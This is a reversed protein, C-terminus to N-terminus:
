RSSRVASMALVASVTEARVGAAATLDEVSAFGGYHERHAVIARAERREIGPITLLFDLTAANLDFHLPLDRVGLAPLDFRRTPHRLWLEPAAAAALLGPNEALLEVATEIENGLRSIRDKGERIDIRHGPEHLERYRVPANDLIPTLHLVELSIRAIRRREDAPSRELLAELFLLVAPTSRLRDESLAAMAEFFADYRAALPLGDAGVTLATALRYFLTAVLGESAVMQELTRVRAPDYTTDTWAWLLDDQAPAAGILVEARVRPLYAFCNEKICAYRRYSQALTLLDRPATLSDGRDFGGDVVFGNRHQREFLEANEARDAALTEFHIGWGESFATIDNTIAGTVHPLQRPHHPVDGLLSEFLMVHGYEHAILEAAHRADIEVYWIRPMEEVQGQQIIALGQRPRNGGDKLVIYAPHDWRSSCTSADNYEACHSKRLKRAQHGIELVWKLYPRSLIERVFSGGPDSASVRRMILLHNESAEGTPELLLYAPFNDEADASAASSGLIALSLLICAWFRKLPSIPM